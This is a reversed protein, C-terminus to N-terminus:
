KKKLKQFINNIQELKEDVRKGQQVFVVDKSVISVFSVM